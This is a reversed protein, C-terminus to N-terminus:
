NVFVHEDRALYSTESNLERISAASAQWGTANVVAPLGSAQLEALTGCYVESSIFTYLQVWARHSVAAM